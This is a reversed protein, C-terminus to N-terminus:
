TLPNSANMETLKSLDKRGDLDICITQSQSKRRRRPTDLGIDM